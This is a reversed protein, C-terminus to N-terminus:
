DFPIWALEDLTGTHSGMAGAASVTWLTEGVVLSRRVSADVWDHPQRQSIEPAPHQVTGLEIFRDGELRLVLAHGPPPMWPMMDSAPADSATSGDPATTEDPETGNSDDPEPLPLPEPLPMPEAWFAPHLPVVLLEDQPWYLFAHPDFEVESSANDIGFTAIRQPDALDSVDFLSVQTGLQRGDETADQGVGVLRGDAVPHLYASYGPIKLEGRLTPATPDTLDITYLPDIERFTVVYGVTGMFRVAYIREGKGLGGVRGVVELAGDQEGLVVVQSESSPEDDLRMPRRFDDTTTAVRLYGDHESMAYQNILWGEVAGSGVYSPRGSGAIDFKHVQTIEEAGGMWWQGGDAVYLSEATAYVTQGDGLVSVTGEPNLGASLDVTVVNLMATGSYDAPHSVDACEVLRGTRESGGVRHVYQPLWEDITSARLAELNAEHAEQESRSYEPYVTPVQPSSRLVLRATSGVLRADTFTGGIALRELVRPEGSVDVLVLEVSEPAPLTTAALGAADDTVAMEWAYTVVLLRDGSLLLQEGAGPLELTGTLERRALDIVRLTQNQVTILRRGDTKVLDPEDVGAEHVNTGSFDEGGHAAASGAETAASDDAAMPAPAAAQGAGGDSEVGAAAEERAVDADVDVAAWGPQVGYPSVHPEAATKLETLAQDCSDFSVLRVAAAAMGPLNVGGTGPTSGATCGTLVLATLATATTLIARLRRPGRSTRRM